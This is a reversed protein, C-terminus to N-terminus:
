YKYLVIGDQFDFRSKDKQITWDNLLRWKTKEALYRDIFERIEFTRQGDSHIMVRVGDPLFILAPIDKYWCIEAGDVVEVHNNDM